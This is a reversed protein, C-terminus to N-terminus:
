GWRTKAGKKGAASRVTSLKDRHHEIEAKSKNWDLYDHLVYDGSSNPIWMARDTLEDLSSQRFRPVLARVKSAPVKGDTTHRNCYYIAASHLRYAADSLAWVKPHEPLQDDTVVWPM